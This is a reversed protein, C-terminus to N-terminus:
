AAGARLGLWLGLLGVTALALPVRVVYSGGWFGWMWVPPWEGGGDAEVVTAVVAFGDAGTETQVQEAGELPVMRGRRFDYTSPPPIEGRATYPDNHAQMAEAIEPAMRDLRDHALRNWVELGAWVLVTGVLAALTLTQANM